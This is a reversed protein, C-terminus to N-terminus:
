EIKIFDKVILANTIVRDAVMGMLTDLTFQDVKGSFMAPITKKVTLEINEVHVYMKGLHGAKDFYLFSVEDAQPFSVAFFYYYQNISDLMNASMREAINGMNYMAFVESINLFGKAEPFIEFIGRGISFCGHKRLLDSLDAPIHHKHETEFRDIYDDSYTEGTHYTYGENDRFFYPQPISFYERMDTETFTIYRKIAQQWTESHDSLLEKYDKM